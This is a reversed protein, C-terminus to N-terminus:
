WGKGAEGAGKGVGGAGERWLGVLKAGRVAAEQHHREEVYVAEHGAQQGRQRSARGDDHGGRPAERRAGKPLVRHLVAGGEVRTLARPPLNAHRCPRPPQGRCARSGCARREAQRAAKRRCRWLCGRGQRRAAEGVRGVVKRGEEERGATGVM